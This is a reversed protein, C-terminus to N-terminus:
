VSCLHCSGFFGHVTGTSDLASLLGKGSYFSIAAINLSKGRLVPTDHLYFNSTHM